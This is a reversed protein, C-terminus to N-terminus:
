LRQRGGVQRSRCETRHRARQRQCATQADGAWLDDPVPQSALIPTGAQRFLILEVQYNGAAFVSPALLTLLLPLLRLLRM